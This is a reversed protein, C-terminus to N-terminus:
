ELVSPRETEWVHKFAFEVRFPIAGLLEKAEDQATGVDGHTPRGGSLFKFELPSEPLREPALMIM